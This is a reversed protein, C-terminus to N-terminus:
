RAPALCAAPAIDLPKVTESSQTSQSVAAGGCPECGGLKFATVIGWSYTQGQCNTTRGGVLNTYTADSYFDKSCYSVASSTAPLVLFLVALCVLSLKSM